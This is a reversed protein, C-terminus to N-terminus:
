QEGEPTPPPPPPLVGRFQEPVEVRDGWGNPGVKHPSVHDGKAFALPRMAGWSAPGYPLNDTAVYFPPEPAEEEPLSAPRQPKSREPM